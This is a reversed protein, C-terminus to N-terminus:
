YARYVEAPVKGDLSSHPRKENFFQFYRGLESVAESISSYDKIYVEEYKVSRWLREIVVNDLARGKGDMSVKIGRELLCDVFKPSTFQSGQDTNFIEPQARLLASQTTELCFRMDLTNSVRFSLVYRSFWDIVACLYAFGQHMRLYTVDTAWVQNPRDITMGRLLFPYVKHEPHPKSTHPGPACSELGMLRMLRQVRKRNAVVGQRMLHRVMQRSGYFPFETHLEDILNMLALTVADVPRPQYYLQSRHLGLLGCQVRVSLESGDHDIMTLRM